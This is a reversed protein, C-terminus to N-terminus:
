ADCFRTIKGATQSCRLFRGPWGWRCTQVVAGCIPPAAPPDGQKRELLSCPGVLRPGQQRNQFIILVLIVMIILNTPGESTRRQSSWRLRSPKAMGIYSPMATASVCAFNDASVVDRQRASNQCGFSCRITRCTLCRPITSDQINKIALVMGNLSQHIGRPKRHESNLQQAPRM